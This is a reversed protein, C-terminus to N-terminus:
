NVSKQKGFANWGKELLQSFAVNGFVNAGSAIPDFIM